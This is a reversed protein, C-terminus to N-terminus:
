YIVYALNEGAIENPPNDDCSRSIKVWDKDLCLVASETEPLSGFLRENTLLVACQADDLMFRMRERPYEPDLPVYAGGAKLAALVGIVMEVSRDILIGVKVDPGVGLGQLHHALQNARRNLERYNLRQDGFVVANAGPTKEVQAEFLHHVCANDPFDATTNNWEVLLRHREAATLVEEAKVNKM